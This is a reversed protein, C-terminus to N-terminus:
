KQENYWKIFEVVAEYLCEIKTKVGILIPNVIRGNDSNIYVMSSSINVSYGISDIKEVVDMLWNWNKHYHLDVETRHNDEEFVYMTYGRYTYKEYGMFDAILKNNEVINKM